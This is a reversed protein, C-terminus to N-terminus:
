GKQDRKLITRVAQAIAVTDLNGQGMRAASAGSSSAGMVSAPAAGESRDQGSGGSAFESATFSDSFGDLDPLVDLEDFGTSSRRGGDRASEVPIAAAAGFSADEPELLDPEEEGAASAALSAGESAADAEAAAVYVVPEAAETEPGEGPLVIDVKSGVEAAAIPEIEQEPGAAAGAGELFGPLMRKVLAIGGYAAAGILLGGVVARLVLALFGVGAIIGVLASLAAASCAALLSARLDRDV